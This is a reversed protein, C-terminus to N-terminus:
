ERGASTAPGASALGSPHADEGGVGATPAPRRHFAPEIQRPGPGPVPARRALAGTRSPIAKAVFGVTALVVGARAPADFLCESVRLVVEPEVVALPRGQCPQRRCVARAM